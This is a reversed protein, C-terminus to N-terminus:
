QYYRVCMGFFHMMEVFSFYYHFWLVFLTTLFVLFVSLREIVTQRWKTTIVLLADMVKYEINRRHVQIIHSMNIKQQSSPFDPILALIFSTFVCVFFPVSLFLFLFFSSFIMKPSRFFLRCTQLSLLRFTEKDLNLNAPSKLRQMLIAAMSSYVENIIGAQPVIMFIIHSPVEM